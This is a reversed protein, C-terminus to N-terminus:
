PPRRIVRIALSFPSCRGIRPALACSPILRGRGRKKGTSSINGKKWNEFGINSWGTDRGFCDRQAPGVPTGNMRWIHWRAARRNTGISPEGWAFGFFAVDADPRDAGLWGTQAPMAPKM